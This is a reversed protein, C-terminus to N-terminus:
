LGSSSSLELASWVCALQCVAARNRQVSRGAEMLCIPAFRLPKDFGHCTVELLKGRVKKFAEKTEFHHRKDSPIDNVYIFGFQFEGVPADTSLCQFAVAAPDPTTM